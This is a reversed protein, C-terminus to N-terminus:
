KSLISCNSQSYLVLKLLTTEVARIEPCFAFDPRLTWKLEFLSRWIVDLWVSQPETESSGWKWDTSWLIGMSDSREFTTKQVTINLGSQTILNAAAFSCHPGPTKWQEGGLLQQSANQSAVVISRFRTIKLNWATTMLNGIQNSSWLGAIYHSTLAGWM